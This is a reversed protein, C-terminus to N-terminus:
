YAGRACVNALATVRGSWRFLGTVFYINIKLLIQPCVIRLVRYVDCLDAIATIRGTWLLLGAHQNITLNVPASCLLRTLLIRAGHYAWDV